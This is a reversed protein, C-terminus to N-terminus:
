KKPSGRKKGGDISEIIQVCVAALQILEERILEPDSEALAERFEEELVLRWTCRGQVAAKDCAAKANNAIEVDTLSARWFPLTQDGWKLRQRVREELIEGLIKATKVSKM